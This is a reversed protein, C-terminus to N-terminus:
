YNNVKLLKNVQLIVSHCYICKASLFLHGIDLLVKLNLFNEVDNHISFPFKLNLNVTKLFLSNVM